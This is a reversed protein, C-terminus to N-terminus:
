KKVPQPGVKGKFTIPDVSHCRNCETLPFAVAGHCRGCYKGELIKEMTIPTGRYKSKFHKEHCNVCDLWETHPLHPFLVYNYNGTNPYIIDQDLTRIKTDPYLNTRPNIDGDRLAKIWNVFNGASDPPLTSLADGPQQLIENKVAPSTPDHLGDNELSKWTGATAELSSVALLALLVFLLLRPAYTFRAKKLTNVTNM